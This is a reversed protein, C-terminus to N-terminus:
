GFIGQLKRYASTILSALQERDQATVSYEDDNEYPPIQFSITQVENPLVKSVPGDQFSFGNTTVGNQDVILFRLHAGRQIEYEELPRGRNSFPIVALCCQSGQPFHIKLKGDERIYALKKELLEDPLIETGELFESCALKYENLPLPEVVKHDGNNHGNNAAAIFKQAVKISEPSTM